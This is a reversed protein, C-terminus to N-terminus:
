VQSTVEGAAFVRSSGDKLEVVLAGTPDVDITRGEFIETGQRLTVSRNLTVLRRKWHAFSIAPAAQTASAIGDLVAALVRERAFEEGAADSLSTAIERIEEYDSTRLNVNLGIGILAATVSEGEVVTDILIGGAKKGSFWIDNPWKVDPTLGLSELGWAVGLPVTVPLRRLDDLPPRVILTFYLNLGAPSVWARGMRGRGATQEEALVVLGEPAGGNARDRAIDMTSGVQEFQEIKRGFGGTLAQEVAEVDISM